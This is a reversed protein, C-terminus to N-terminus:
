AAGRMLGSFLGGGPHSTKWALGQRIRWVLHKSVGMEAALAKAPAESNRIYAAKQEDLKVWRNAASRAIRRNLQVRMARAGANDYGRMASARRDSLALHEICLATECATTVRRNRPVPKGTRKEWLLRRLSTSRWKPSVARGSGRPVSTAGQWVLCGACEQVLSQEALLDMIQELTLAYAGKYRRSTM